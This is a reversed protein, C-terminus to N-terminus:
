SRKLPGQPGTVLPRIGVIAVLQLGAIGPLLLGAWRPIAADERIRARVARAHRVLHRTSRRSEWLSEAHRGYLRSPTPDLVIRGRFALSVGLVWDEGSDADAYGGSEKVAATRM